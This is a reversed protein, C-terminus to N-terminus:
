VLHMALSMLIISTVRYGSQILLLKSGWGCFLNDSLLAPFIILGGLIAGITIATSFDSINMFSYLLAIGVAALFSSVISGILPVTQKGLLEPTKGICNMWAPGFALPSYWLGGLIMGIFTAAIIGLFNLEIM